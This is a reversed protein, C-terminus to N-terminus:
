AEVRLVLIHRLCLYLQRTYEPQRFLYTFISDKVTHKMEAVPVGGKGRNYGIGGDKQM